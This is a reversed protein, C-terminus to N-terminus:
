RWHPAANPISKCNFGGRCRERHHMGTVFVVSLILLLVGIMRFLMSNRLQYAVGILSVSILAIAFGQLVILPMHSLFHSFNPEHTPEPLDLKPLHAAQGYYLLYGGLGVGVLVVVAGIIQGNGRISVSSMRWEQPSLRWWLVVLLILVLVGEVVYDNM